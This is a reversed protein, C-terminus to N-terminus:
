GAGHRSVGERGHSMGGASVDRLSLVTILGVFRILTAAVITATAMIAVTPHTVTAFAAPSAGLGLVFTASLIGALPWRVPPLMAKM